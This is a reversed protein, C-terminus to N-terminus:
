AERHGPLFERKPKIETAILDGRNYDFLGASPTVTIDLETGLFLNPVLSLPVYIPNSLNGEADTLYVVEGVYAYKCGAPGYKTIPVCSTHPILYAIGGRRHFPPHHSRYIANEAAIASGVLTALSFGAAVPLHKIASGIRSIIGM